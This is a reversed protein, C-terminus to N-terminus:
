ARVSLRAFGSSIGGSAAETEAQKPEVAATGEQEKEGQGTGTAAVSADGLEENQKESIDMRAKAALAQARQAVKLDQSSPEAPALAAARVQQAKQLTAEPDGPIASIDISVEGGVAYTKGDPGREFSYSPSGAYAGGTAAHAAEHARVEKDRAQLKLIEQAEQSLELSDRQRGDPGVEDQGPMTRVQRSNVSKEEHESNPTVVDSHSTPEEFQHAAYTASHYNIANLM